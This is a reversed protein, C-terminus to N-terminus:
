EVNWDKISEGYARTRLDETRRGIDCGKRYALTCGSRELEHSFFLDNGIVQEGM